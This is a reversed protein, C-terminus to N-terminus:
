FLASGTKLDALMGRLRNADSYCFRGYNGHLEFHKQALLSGRRLLMMQREAYIKRWRRQIISIWCTKLCIPFESIDTISYEGTIRAIDEALIICNFEDDNVLDDLYSYVRQLPFRFFVDASMLIDFGYEVNDDSNIDMIEISLGIRNKLEDPTKANVINWHVSARYQAYFDHQISETDSEDDDDDIFGSSVFEYPLQPVVRLTYVLMDDSYDWM